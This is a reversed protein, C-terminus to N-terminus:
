NDLAALRDIGLQKQEVANLNQSERVSNDQVIAMMIEGISKFGPESRVNVCNTMLPRGGRFNTGAATDNGPSFDVYVRSAGAEDGQNGRAVVAQKDRYAILTAAVDWRDDSSKWLSRPALVGAENSLKLTYPSSTSNMWHGKFALTDTGYLHQSVPTLMPWMRLAELSVTNINGLGPVASEITGYRTTRFRDLINLAFPIGNAIYPDFGGSYNWAGDSNIDNYPVFRDTPLHCRDLAKGIQFEYATDTTARSYNLGFAMAESLTTHRAELEAEPNGAAPATPNQYPGIAWPLLLDAPRLPPRLVETNPPTNNRRPYVPLLTSKAGANWGVAALDDGIINTADNTSNRSAPHVGAPTFVVNVGKGIMRKFTNASGGQGTFDSPGLRGVTSSNSFNFNADTVNKANAAATYGSGDKPELCWAPMTGATTDSADGPLPGGNPDTRRRVAGFMTIAFGTNFRQGAVNTYEPDGPEPGADIGTFRNNVSDLRRSLAARQGADGYNPDRLRDVLYDNAIHNSTATEATAGTPDRVVRWLRVVKNADSTASSDISEHLTGTAVQTGNVPNIQVTRMAPSSNGAVATLQKDVWTKLVDGGLGALSDITPDAARWRLLVRDPTDSLVYFCLSQRPLLTVNALRNGSDDYKAADYFKGAFEFYYAFTNSAPDGLTIPVDFPNTVQFAVCEMLFDNNTNSIRGDITIGLSTTTGTPVGMADVDATWEGDTSTSTLARSDGGRSGPADHYMDFSVAATVFPQPQAAFINVAYDTTMANAGTALKTTAPNAPDVMDLDFPYAKVDAKTTGLTNPTLTSTNTLAGTLTAPWYPFQRPGSTFTSTAVQNRKTSDLLVTAALLRNDPHTAGAVQRSDDQWAMLNLAMHAASRLAVEAARGHFQGPVVTEGVNTGTTATDYTPGGFSMGHARLGGVPADNWVLPDGLFPSLALAYNRFIENAAPIPYVGRSPTATLDVANHLLPIIDTRVEDSTMAYRASPDTAGTLLRHSYRIPRAGNITTLLHRPDSFYQAMAAPVQNGGGVYLGPMIGADRDTVFDRLSRFPSMLAYRPDSAAVTELRSLARADNVFGFARLDLEDAPGFGGNQKLFVPSTPTDSRLQGNADDKGGLTYLQTRTVSGLMVGNGNLGTPRSTGISALWSPSVIDPGAPAFFSNGDVEAVGSVRAELIRSFASLGALTIQSADNYNSGDVWNSGPNIDFYQRADALTLLRELDVDSPTLGAPNEIDPPVAFSTAVNVNVMGSLDIIRPAVFWRVGTGGPLLSAPRSPDSTDVLEQWLADFWGDGDADALTNGMHKVDGATLASPNWTTPRFTELRDNSWTAPSNYLDINTVRAIRPTATFPDAGGNSSRNWLHLWDSMAPTTAVTYPGAATFGAPASFNGRLNATNVPLGSPSILSLHGWDRHLGMLAFASPMAPLTTLSRNSWTPTSTALYPDSTVRQDEGAATWGRTINGAPNFRANDANVGGLTLNSRNSPDTYPYDSTERVSYFTRAGGNATYVRQVRVATADEGIINRIHESIARSQDDLRAQNVLARGGRADAQGVSTYVVIIIALLALVGVVLVLVSGRRNHPTGALVRLRTADSARTSLANAPTHNHPM